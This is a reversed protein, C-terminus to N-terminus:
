DTSNNSSRRRKRRSGEEATVPTLHVDVNESSWFLPLLRARAGDSNTRVTVKDNDDVSIEWGTSPVSVTEHALRWKCISSYDLDGLYHSWEKFSQPGRLAEPLTGMKAIHQRVGRHSDMFTKFTGWNYALVFADDTPVFLACMPFPIYAKSARPYVRRVEILSHSHSRALMLFLTAALAYKCKKTGHWSRQQLRVELQDGDVMLQVAERDAEMFSYIAQRVFFDYLVADEEEVHLAKCQLVAKLVPDRHLGNLDWDYLPHAVPTDTPM